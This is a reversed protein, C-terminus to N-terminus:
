WRASVGGGVVADNGSRDGLVRSPDPVAPASVVLFPSSEYDADSRGSRTWASASVLAYVVLAFALPIGAFILLAQVFSM